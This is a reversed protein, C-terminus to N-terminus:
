LAQLQRENDALALSDGNAVAPSFAPLAAIDHVARTWDTSTNGPTGGSGGTSSKRFWYDSAHHTTDGRLYTSGSAWNGRFVGRLSHDTGGVSLETVTDGSRSGNNAEVTPPANIWQSATGTRSLIQDGSGGSALRAPSFVGTNIKNAPLTPIQDDELTLTHLIDAGVSRSVTFDIDAGNLDTSFGDIVGDGGASGTADEWAQGTGTRTLVQDNTGGPALKETPIVLTNRDRAWDAILAVAEALNQLDSLDLEFSGGESTALTILKSTPDYAASNLVGDSGTGGVASFTITTSLNDVGQLTLTLTSGTVSAAKVFAGDLDLVSVMKRGEVTSPSTSRLPGAIPIQAEGPEYTQAQCLSVFLAAALALRRM